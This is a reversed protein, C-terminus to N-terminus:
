VSIDGDCKILIDTIKDLIETINDDSHLENLSSLKKSIDQLETKIMKYVRSNPQITITGELLMKTIYEQKTLGSVRVMSDLVKSEGPSMRFGITKSRFRNYRDMNKASM